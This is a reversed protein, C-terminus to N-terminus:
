ILKWVYKPINTWDPTMKPGNLTMLTLKLFRPDFYAWFSGIKTMKSKLGVILRSITLISYNSLFVKFLTLITLFRCNKRLVAGFNAFIPWNQGAISFPGTDNWSWRYECRESDWPSWYVQPWYIKMFNAVQAMPFYDYFLQIQWNKPKKPWELPMKLVSRWNKPKFSTLQQLNQMIKQWFSM